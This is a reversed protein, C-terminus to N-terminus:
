QSKKVGQQCPIFLTITTGENKKSDIELHGGYHKLIEYTISLGFGRGSKNGSPILDDLNQADMGPGSDSIAIVVFPHNSRMATDTKISLKGGSQMAEIANNMVNLIAQEIHFSNMTIPPIEGFEFRSQINRTYIQLSTFIEVKKLLANIDTARQETESVSSSLFNTIFNELRTIEDEMIKTFETLPEESHYKERLYVVAGKIANLPNRVGHALTSAVKGIDILKQSQHLKREAACASYPQILVKVLSVKKRGPPKVPTIEIDARTCGLLCNFSYGKCSMAKNKKVAEAIADKDDVIIRPLIDYYKSGIAQSSPRGSYIAIEQEWSCICLKNDTQFSLERM